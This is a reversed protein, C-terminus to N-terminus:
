NTERAVCRLSYGVGVSMNNDTLVTDNVSLTALYRTTTNGSPATTSWWHGGGTSPEENRASIAGSYVFNLPESTMIAVSEPLNNGLAINHAAFLTEFEARSPMKWGKPCISETAEASSTAGSITGATAAAYNYLVGNEANGTDYLYPNTKKETVDRSTTWNNNPVTFSSATIDSNENTIVTNKLRLNQNMWCRGDKGKFITYENGDRPDSLSTIAGYGAVDCIAKTMEQMTTVTSPFPDPLVPMGRPIASIVVEKSYSGSILSTSVKTGIYIATELEASTPTHDIEKIKTANTLTPIKSFNTNDLSYGWKNAAMTSSTVTNNFDSAIVTSVSSNVHTMDTNDDEASFYLEYGYASNTAITATVPSSSFVGEATPSNVNITIDNTDVSLSIVEGVVASVAVDAANSKIVPSYIYVSIVTMFLAGFFIGFKNFSGSKINIQKGIM